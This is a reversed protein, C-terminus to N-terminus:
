LCRPTPTRANWQMQIKPTFGWCHLQQMQFGTGCGAPLVVQVLRECQKGRLTRLVVVLHDAHSKVYLIRFTSEYSGNACQGKYVAPWSVGFFSASCELNTPPRRWCALSSLLSKRPLPLFPLDRCEGTPIKFAWTSVKVPNVSARWVIQVVGKGRLAVDKLHSSPHSYYPFHVKWLCLLPCCSPFSGGMARTWGAPWSSIMNEWYGRVHIAIVASNQSQVMVFVCYTYGVRAMKLRLPEGGAESHALLMTPSPKHLIRQALWM